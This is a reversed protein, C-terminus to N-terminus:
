NTIKLILNFSKNSYQMVQVESFYKQKQLHTYRSEFLHLKPDMLLVIKDLKWYHIFDFRSSSLSFLSKFYGLEYIKEM